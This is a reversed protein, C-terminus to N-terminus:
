FFFNSQFFFIIKFLSLPCLIPPPNATSSFKKNIPDGYASIKQKSILVPFITQFFLVTVGTLAVGVKTSLLTITRVSSLLVNTNSFSFPETM